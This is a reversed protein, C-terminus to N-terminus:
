VHVRYLRNAVERVALTRVRNLEARLKTLRKQARLGAAKFVKGGDMTALVSKIQQVLGGGKLLTGDVGSVAHRPERKRVQFVVMDITTRLESLTFLLEKLSDTVRESEIVVMVPQLTAVSRAANM